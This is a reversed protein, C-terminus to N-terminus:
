NNILMELSMRESHFLRRRKPRKFDESKLLRMKKLEIAKQKESAEDKESQLYAVRRNTALRVDSIMKKNVDIDLLMNGDKPIAQHVLRQAVLSCKIMNDQLFNKIISFGREPEASGHSLVLCM